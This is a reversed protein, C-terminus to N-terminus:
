NYKDRYHQPTRDLRPTKKRLQNQQQEPLKTIVQCENSCCSSYQKQCKECQIFLIHCMTNMCNVYTDSSADCQHCTSIIDKELQEGLRQDFTFNKGTFKNQIKKRKVTNLYNTIGGHLQYVKSFGKQKLYVSAKECRIGGTCYLLIKNDEKGELIEPLIQIEERYTTTNPCLANKFHGVLSEYHNRVDVVVVNNEEMTQNFLEPSLHMGVQNMNFHFNELEEAVIKDKCKITLKLFAHQDAQEPQVSHNIHVKQLFSFFKLVKRFSRYYINPVSIQANIGENAIYIRGLINLDSFQKYLNDRFVGPEDLQCFCYFSVIYRLYKEDKLKKELIDKSYINHLPM